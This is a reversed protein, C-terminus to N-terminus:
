YAFPPAKFVFSFSSPLYELLWCFLFCLLDDTFLFFSSGKVDFEYAQGGNEALHESGITYFIICMSFIFGLDSGLILGVQPTVLPGASECM